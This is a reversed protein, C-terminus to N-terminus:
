EQLAQLVLIELKERLAKQVSLVQPDLLDLQAQQVLM